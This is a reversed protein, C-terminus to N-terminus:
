KIITRDGLGKSIERKLEDLAMKSQQLEIIEDIKDEKQAILLKDQLEKIAQLIAKNKLSNVTEPVLEQLKQKETLIYNDHRSWIKSLDYELALLQASLQSIEADIHNIFYKQGPLGDKEMFAWYEELIKQYSKNKLNMDDNLLEAIIYEAVRVIQEKDNEDKVRLLEEEGYNLLVRIIEREQAETNEYDFDTQRPKKIEQKERIRLKKFDQEHQGRRTKAIEQYLMEEDVELMLSTERIYVSRNISDPIVSISKVIDRILNARVIPDDASEKLLLEAKFKIFDKKNKEIYDTFESVSVKRSYSDPDEGPPLVVVKVNMAEELVLDIGRLSAKLGAADGDYLMVINPTLRKILRIQDKTLATGSSAVVNEIGAQHLALVDTYGEVLYCAGNQVVSKKGEFLGYLVKSKHYIDTEPSNLYKAAKAETKLIRGGFGLVQGSMSRIPFIVRGAFRDFSYNEKEISLGTKVLYEMKYGAAQAARSLDDRKEKSYGLEFKKLIDQRFGREKFYSLGVTTGEDDNFLNNQFYKNAWSLVVLQSERESQEKKEEESLEKEQVEIHYKRALYKLAEPYSLHEHEMIFNVSNGAVGCGFCKYIGKAPSVTFSPTKENHFPCLGLFNVGRKKLSVFDGVVETIVAADMIKEITNRDIM